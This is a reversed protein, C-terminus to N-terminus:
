FPIDSDSVELGHSNTFAGPKAEQANGMGDAKSTSAIKLSYDPDREAQKRTNRFIMLRDGPKANQLKELAYDDLKGSLYATGAKSTRKWLSGIQILNNGNESM